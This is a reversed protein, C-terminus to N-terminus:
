RIIVKRGRLIYLGPTLNDTSDSVRQGQLNYVPEDSSDKWSENLGTNNEETGFVFRYYPAPSSNTEVFYCKFGSLIEKTWPYFGVKEETKAAQLAYITGGARVDASVQASLHGTLSPASTPNTQTKEFKIPCEYTTGPVGVMVVPTHAPILSMLQELHLKYEVVGTHTEDHSDTKSDIYYVSLGGAIELEVPSYLSAYGYGNASIRVPLSELMEIYWYAYDSGDANGVTTGTADGHLYSSGSKISYCESYKGEGRTFTFVDAESAEAVSAMLNIAKVYQGNQYFLFHGQEDFYIINDMGKEAMGLATGDASLTAYKSSSYNKLRLFTGKEASKLRYTVTIHHGSIEVESSYSPLYRVNVDTALITNHSSNFIADGTYTVGWIQISVGNAPANVVTLEYQYINLVNVPIKVEKAIFDNTEELALTLFTEGHSEGTVTFVYIHHEADYSKQTVTAIEYDNMLASCNGTYDGLDVTIDKRGGVALSVTSPNVEVIPEPKNSVIIKVSGEESAEYGASADIWYRITAEGESVGTIEGTTANITAIAPNDSVFHQNGNSNTILKLVVSANVRVTKSTFSPEVTTSRKGVSLSITKSAGKYAGDAVLTATIIANGVKEGTVVGKNDVTAVSNDSSSYTISGESLTNVITKLQDGVAIQKVGGEAVFTFAPDKLNVTVQVSKSQSAYNETQAVTATLTVQGEKLGRIVGDSNITAVTPDSSVYTVAGDGNRTYTTALTEDVYLTSANGATAFQLNPLQKPEEKVILLYSAKVSGKSNQHTATIITEGAKNLTVAGTSENVTAVETNSSSYIVSISSPSKTVTPANFTSGEVIYISRPFSLSVQKYLYMVDRDDIRSTIGNILWCFYSDHDIQKKYIYFGDGSESIQQYNVESPYSIHYAESKLYNLSTSSKISYGEDGKTIIFSKSVDANIKYQSSTVSEQTHWGNGPCIMTGSNTSSSKHYVILYNAGSTLENMGTIRLFSSEAAKAVLSLQANKMAVWNTKGDQIKVGVTLNGSADSAGKVKLTKYYGSSVNNYKIAIGTSIDESTADGAYVCVGEPSVNSEENYSRVLASFEYISNPELDTVNYSWTGAPLRNIGGGNGVWNELFPTTMGSGDSNGETSWTNIHFSSNNDISWGNLNDTPINITQSWVTTTVMSFIAVAVMQIVNKFMYKM